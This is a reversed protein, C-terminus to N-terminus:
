SMPDRAIVLRNEKTVMQYTVRVQEPPQDANKLVLDVACRPTGDTDLYTTHVTYEVLSVSRNWDEDFFEIAQSGTLLSAPKAGQKWAALATEVPTRAEDLVKQQASGDGCGCCALTLVFSVLVQSWVAYKIPSHM